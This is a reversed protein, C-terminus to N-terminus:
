MKHDHLRSPFLPFTFLARIVVGLMGLKQLVTKASFALASHLRLMVLITVTQLMTGWCRGDPSFYYYGRLCYSWPCFDSASVQIELETPIVRVYDAIIIFMSNIHFDAAHEKNRASKKWEMHVPHLTSSDGVFAM